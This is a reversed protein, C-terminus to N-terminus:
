KHTRSRRLRVGQCPQGYRSTRARGCAVRPRMVVDARYCRNIDCLLRSGLWARQCVRLQRDLIDGLISQCASHVGGFVGCRRIEAKQSFTIWLQLPDARAGVCRIAAASRCRRSALLSSL